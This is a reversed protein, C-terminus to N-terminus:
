GRPRRPPWSRCRARGARAAAPGAPPHPAPARPHTAPPWPPARPHPGRRPPRVAGRRWPAGRPAPRASPRDRSRHRRRSSIAQSTPTSPGSSAATSQHPPVSPAAVRAIRPPQPSRAWMQHRISVLQPPRAAPAATSPAPRPSTVPQQGPERLEGHLVSRPQRVGEQDEGQDARRQDDAHRQGSITSTRPTVTETTTTVTQTMATVVTNTAATESSSMAPTVSGDTPASPRTAPSAAIPKWGSWTSSRPSPRRPARRLGARGARRRWGPPRGPRRRGPGPAAPSGRPAPAATRRAASAPRALQGDRARRRRM